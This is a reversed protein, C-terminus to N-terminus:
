LVVSAQQLCFCNVQQVAAAFFMVDSSRCCMCSPTSSFPVSLSSMPRPGLLLQRVVLATNCALLATRCPGLWAVLVVAHWSGTTICSCACVPRLVPSVLIAPACCLMRAPLLDIPACALVLPWAEAWAAKSGTMTPCHRSLWCHRCLQQSSSRENLERAHTSRSCFFPCRPTPSAAANHSSLGVQALGLWVCLRCWCCSPCGAWKFSTALWHHRVVHVGLMFM